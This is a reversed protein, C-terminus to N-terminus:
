GAALALKLIAFLAVAGAFIAAFSTLVIWFLKAGEEHVYDEVIVVLGLKAHWLTSVVLLALPVAALPSRLWEALTAHDLTPLRLLAVALWVALILTSVSTLRELWWHRAGSKASGLGRVRAIPTEMRAAPAEMRREANM